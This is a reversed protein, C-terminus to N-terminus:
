LELSGPTAAAETIKRSEIAMHTHLDAARQRLIDAVRLLVAMHEVPLAEAEKMVVMAAESFGAIRGFAFGKAIYDSMAITYRYDSM